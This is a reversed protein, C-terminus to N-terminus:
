LIGGLTSRSLVCRRLGCMDVSIYQRTASIGTHGLLEAALTTTGGNSVIGTGFFRRLGHFTKGDDKKYEIGAKKMHKKLVGDLDPSGSFARYPAKCTLFVYPLKSEPRENLIYDALAAAVPKLLPLALARRTKQQIIHLEGEAWKIDTLRLRILDGARIGTTMALSLIAFDRRGPSSTKDIGAIIRMLEEETFTQKITKVRSPFSLLMWIRHIDYGTSELFRFFHRMAYVISDMSKPTKKHQQEMFRRVDDPRLDCVDEIGCEALYILFKNVIATVRNKSSDGIQLSELFEQQIRIYCNPIGPIKRNMYKGQHIEGTAYFDQLLLVGRKRWNYLAKSIAGTELQKKYMTMLGDMVDQDYSTKGLEDYRQLIPSFVTHEYVKITNHAIGNQKMQKIIAQSMSLVDSEM